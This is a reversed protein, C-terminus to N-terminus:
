GGTDPYRKGVDSLIHTVIVRERILCVDEDIIFVIAGLIIDGKLLNTGYPIIAPTTFAVDIHERRWPTLFVDLAQFFLAGLMLYVQMPFRERYVVEFVDAVIHGTEHYVIGLLGLFTGEEIQHVVIWERLSSYIWESPVLLLVM